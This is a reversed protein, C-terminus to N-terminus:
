AAKRRVLGRSPSYGIIAAALLLGGCGLVVLTAVPDIQGYLAFRILEVGYTFPNAACIDAVLASGERIKWLPYLATSLFFMPFVVFNMVGAFNELQRILSSLLLGLAGLLLGNAILAPLVTLYGLPPADDGCLWAVALFAYVQVLSVAIGALLKCIILYWRPLPSTLLVRMSGMERDYVM